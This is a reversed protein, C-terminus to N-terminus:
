HVEYHSIMGPMRTMGSTQDHAQIYLDKEHINLFYSIRKNLQRILAYTGDNVHLGGTLLFHLM